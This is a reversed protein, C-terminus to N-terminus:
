RANSSPQDVADSGANAANRNLVTYFGIGGVVLLLLVAGTILRRPSAIPRSEVSRQQAPPLEPAPLGDTNLYAM